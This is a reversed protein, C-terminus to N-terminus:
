QVRRPLTRISRAPKGCRDAGAPLGASERRPIPKSETQTGPRPLRCRKVRRLRGPERTVARTTRGRGGPVGAATLGEAADRGLADLEDAVEM